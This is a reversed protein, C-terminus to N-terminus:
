GRRLKELQERDQQIVVPRFTQRNGGKTYKPHSWLYECKEQKSNRNECFEDLEDISMDNAIYVFADQEVVNWNQENLKIIDADFNTIKTRGQMYSEYSWPCVDKISLFYHLWLSGEHDKKREM